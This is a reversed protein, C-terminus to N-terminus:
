VGTESCFKVMCTRYGFGRCTSLASEEAAKKTPRIEGNVTQLQGEYDYGDATCFWRMATFDEGQDKGQAFSSSAVVFVSLVAAIYKGM